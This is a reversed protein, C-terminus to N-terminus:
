GSLFQELIINPSESLLDRCHTRLEDENKCLKVGHSGRGRVLKAVIPFSFSHLMRNLAAITTITTVRPLLLGPQRRLMENVLNKNDYREVFTPPQGVVRLRDGVADLTSSMQLPHTEFLITNAWLHMAGRGVADFIGSETDPFCWGQGFKPTPDPEPTLVEIGCRNKLVYAVDADSDQYGSVDILVDLCRM